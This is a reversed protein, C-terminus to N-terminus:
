TFAVDTVDVAVSVPDRVVTGDANRVYVRRQTPVAIGDFTRYDSPYHVAPGGGLIDVSYDLRRLLGGDDFYYTQQRTHAVVTEPCTVLLRRWTLGDEQWPEIEEVAFDPRAFVFPAVFFNWNAEGAFYALQFHDWPSERTLDRFSAAPDRREGVVRGDAAEIVEHDPTWLVSQGAAPFPSIRLRQRRADGELVVDELLGPRGKLMWIAGTISAAARFSSIQEWRRLGGHAEIALALLELV